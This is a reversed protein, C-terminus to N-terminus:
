GEPIAPLTLKVLALLNPKVEIVKLEVSENSDKIGVVMLEYRGPPVAEILGETVQILEKVSSDNLRISVRDFDKANTITVKINGLYSKDSETKLVKGLEALNSQFELIWADTEQKVLNEVQLSFEKVRQLLPGYSKTKSEQQQLLLSACEYHFIQLLRELSLQTVTYRMWSTSLGFYKDFGVIAAALAILVYGWKGIAFSGAGAQDNFFIGTADILPCLIGAAAFTVATIRLIQALNKKSKSRNKYWEIRERAQYVAWRYMQLLSEDSKSSDWIPFEPQTSM